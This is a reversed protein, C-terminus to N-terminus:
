TLPWAQVWYTVRERVPHLEARAQVFLKETRAWSKFELWERNFPHEASEIALPWQLEGSGAVLARVAGDARCQDDPSSGVDVVASPAGARIVAALKSRLSGFLWSVEFRLGRLNEGGSLWEFEKTLLRREQNAALQGGLSLGKMTGRGNAGSTRKVHLFVSAMPNLADPSPSVHLQIGRLEPCRMHSAARTRVSTNLRLSTTTM